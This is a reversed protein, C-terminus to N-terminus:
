LAVNEIYISTIIDILWKQHTGRYLTTSYIYSHFFTFSHLLFPAIKLFELFDQFPEVNSPISLPEDM